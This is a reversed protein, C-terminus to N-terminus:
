ARCHVILPHYYLIGPSKLHKSIWARQLILKNDMFLLTYDMEFSHTLLKGNQDRLFYKSHLPEWFIHMFVISNISIHACSSSRPIEMKTQLFRIERGKLM